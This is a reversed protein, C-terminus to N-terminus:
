ISAAVVTLVRICQIGKYKEAIYAFLEAESDAFCWNEFVRNDTLTVRYDFRFTNSSAM